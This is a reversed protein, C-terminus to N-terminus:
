ESRRFRARVMTQLGPFFPDLNTLISSLFGFAIYGLVVTTLPMEYPVHPTVFLDMSSAVATVLTAALLKSVGGMFRSFSFAEDDLFARLVGVIIDTASLLVVVAFLVSALGEWIVGAVVVFGVTAGKAGSWAMTDSMWAMSDPFGTQALITERRV